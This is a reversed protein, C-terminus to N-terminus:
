VVRAESSARFDPAEQKRCRRCLDKPGAWRLVLLGWITV